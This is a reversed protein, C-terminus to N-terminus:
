DERDAAFGFIAHDSQDGAQLPSALMRQCSRQDFRRLGVPERQDGGVFETGQGAAANHAPHAPV